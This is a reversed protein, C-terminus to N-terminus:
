YAFVHLSNTCLYGVCLYENMNSGLNEQDPTWLRRQYQVRWVKWIRYYYVAVQVPKKWDSILKYM